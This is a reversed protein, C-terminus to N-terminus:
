LGQSLEGEGFFVRCKALRNQAGGNVAFALGMKNTLATARNTKRKKKTSM